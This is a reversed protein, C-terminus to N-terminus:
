STYVVYHYESDLILFDRSAAPHGMRANKALTPRSAASAINNSVEAHALLQPGSGLTGGSRRRM